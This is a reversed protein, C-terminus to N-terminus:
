AMTQVTGHKQYSVALAQLSAAACDRDQGFNEMSVTM